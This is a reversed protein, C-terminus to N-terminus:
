LQLLRYIFFIYIILLLLGSFRSISKNLLYTIIFILHSAIFVMSLLHSQNLLNLSNDFRIDMFLSSVGLVFIINIINSGIINGVLLNYNKKRISAMSTFLEPLSTGLAVITTGIVLEEIGLMNSINIANEVILNTGIALGIISLLIILFMKILNVSLEKNDDISETNNKILYNFYGLFLLLLFIGHVYNININYLICGIVYIGLFFIFLLDKLIDSEFLVKCMIACFGLVLSVNAINSGLVNGVVLGIAEENNLFLISYLSVLLEPLSTGVAIVTAGIIIPSIKLKQSLLASNDILSDSSYYLFVCGIFFLLFPILNHVLLLIGLITGDDNIQM